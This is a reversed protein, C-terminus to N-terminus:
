TNRVDRESTTQRSLLVRIMRWCATARWNYRCAILNYASVLHRKAILIMEVVGCKTHVARKSRIRASLEKAVLPSLNKAESSGRREIM